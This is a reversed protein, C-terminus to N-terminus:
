YRIKSCRNLPLLVPVFFSLLNQFFEIPWSVPGSFNRVNSPFVFILTKLYKRSM